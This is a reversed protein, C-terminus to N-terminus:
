GTHRSIKKVPKANKEIYKIIEDAIDQGTTSEIGKLGPSSNVEMVM